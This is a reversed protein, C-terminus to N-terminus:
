RERPLVPSDHVSGRSGALPIGTEARRADMGRPPDPHPAQRKPCRAPTFGCIAYSTIRQRFPRAAIPLSVFGDLLM